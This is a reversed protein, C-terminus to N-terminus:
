CNEHGHLQIRAAPFIATFASGKKYESVILLRADHRALIHKVIALGLGTGGTAISRSSDVRYFRETLRAIHHIEIGIGEDIVRIELEKFANRHADITVPKDAPSYKVANLILNSLASHLERDNGMIMVNDECHININRDNFKKVTVVENVIMSLLPKLMVPAPSKNIEETELKSLMTLDNILATMRSAQQQMQKLPKQWRSNVDNSDSLTEVYGSIVTLPTRLEHSVNAVFDKRMKELRHLQTVDRVIMLGEKNGFLSLRVELRQEINGIAPLLLPEDFNSDNIYNVFVPHRIFNTIPDGIDSKKLRLLNQSAKNIWSISHDPELLIVADALAETMTEVRHIVAKLRKREKNQRKKDRALNDFINGWIGSADPINNLRSNRLWTELQYIQFLTWLIYLICGILLVAMLKEIILGIFLCICLLFSIRQIELNFDNRM